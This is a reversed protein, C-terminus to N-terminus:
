VPLEGTARSFAFADFALMVKDSATLKEKPVFRIPIYSRHTAGRRPCDIELAHLRAQVDPEAIAYDFVLRYRCARLQEVPPTGVYWEKQLNSTRLLTSTAEKYNEELRRQWEYFESQAGIQGQSVLYSKKPCKLFAEFSEQTIQATM